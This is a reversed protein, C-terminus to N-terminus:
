QHNRSIFRLPTFEGASRNTAAALNPLAWNFYAWPDVGLLKCTAILSYIVAPHDGANPHGVFLWNRLGLKTPRISREVPNNDILIHGCDSGIFVTLEKWRSQCYNVAKGLLSQPLLTLDAAAPQNGFTTWSIQGSSPAFGFGFFGRGTIAFRTAVRERCKPGSRPRFELLESIRKM